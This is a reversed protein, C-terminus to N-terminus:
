RCWCRIGPRGRHRAPEHDQLAGTESPASTPRPAASTSPSSTTAAASQRRDLARRHRRRGPGVDPHRDATRSRLDRVRRSAAMRSCSACSRRPHRQRPAPEGSQQSLPSTKPGVFANMAATSFREYERIVNVVESSRASIPTPCSPACSKRPARQEHADNLFSFLFGIISRSSAAASSVAEVAGRCRTRTM